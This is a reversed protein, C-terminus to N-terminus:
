LSPLYLFGIPFPGVIFAYFLTLFNFSLLQSLAIFIDIDKRYHKRFQNTLACSGRSPKGTRQVHISMTENTKEGATRRADEGESRREQKGASAGKARAAAAKESCEM